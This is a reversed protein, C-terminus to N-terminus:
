KMAAQIMLTYIKQEPKLICASIPQDAPCNIGPAPQWNASILVIASDRNMAITEGTPGSAQYAPLEEFGLFANKLKTIIESSNGLELENGTTSIQCAFGKENTIYDEFPVSTEMVLSRSIVKAANELLIQCFEKTLPVYPTSGIAPIALLLTYSLKEKSHSQVQIFYDQSIIVAGKWKTTQYTTLLKGDEGTISIEAPFIEASDPSIAIEVAVLQGKLAGFVFSKTEGPQLSDPMQTMVSGKEFEIRHPQLALTETPSPLTLTIPAVETPINDISRPATTATLIKQTIETNIIARQAEPTSSCATLLCTLLILNLFIKKSKWNGTM